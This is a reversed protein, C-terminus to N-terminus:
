KRAKWKRRSTLARELKDPSGGIRAWDSVVKRRVESRLKQREVVDLKDEALVAVAIESALGVYHAHHEHEFDAIAASMYEMCEEPTKKTEGAERKDWWLHGIYAWWLLRAADAPEVERGDAINGAIILRDYDEPACLDFLVSINQEKRKPRGRKRATM